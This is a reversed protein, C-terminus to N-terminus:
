RGERLRRVASRIASAGLLSFVAVALIVPWWRPRNHERRFETRQAVDIRRYKMTNFAIPHPMPNRYWRHYLTYNVPFDSFIWPADERAIDIMQRIVQLRQPSNEMSRMRVFLEDFQPNQYNGVNEGGTKAKANPGYLLFLFNEPDPYDAVWGWRLFQFNGGDVKDNFRNGDSTEVNLRINLKAFQKRYFNLLSRSEPSNIGVIMRISLPQGDHGFGNPYGAEALLGRAEELSRRVPRGRASDWRFVIPNMGARGEEHGFIGPAIPGHASLGQGNNFIAIQEESSFAISIAQRLKRKEASYGGIVPDLMNFAYYSMTASCSSAMGIGLAAAEDSLLSDGKSTLSVARDFIDSSMLSTDYYGQTFKNWRPITEKEMRWVIRDIMPLRRGVDELMGAAKMEDYNARGQVDGDRPPPLDPYHKERFNANRDFVIQNTPDFERMVYPGTGVLNRDFVISRQLMAEQDFFAIAEPPVPALFPMALWYLIQPYPRQLVVEFTYRDVERVFPFADAGKDYDLRIPNYKEDSQPNYLTGAAAKRQRRAEELRAQLSKQYEAMGLLNDALTSYIPCALRPDALRRLAYVYDGAVLERSAVPRIDWVSSASRVDEPTLRRNAEVFCPHDQYRIGPKLRVAYVTADITKGQFSVARQSPRPIAEATLPALEYPRKLLHYQFPPEIVQCMLEALEAGYAQAPDLHKPEEIFTNYLTNTGEDSSPYPSNCQSAATALVISALTLQGVPSLFGM